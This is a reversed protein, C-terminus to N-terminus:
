LSICSVMVAVENPSSSPSKTPDFSPLMTILVADEEGSEDDTSVSPSSTPGGTPLNSPVGSPKLTTPKITEFFHWIDGDDEQVQVSMSEDEKMSMSEDWSFLLSFSMSSDKWEDNVLSGWPNTNASPVGTPKPEITELFHWMDGDDGQVSMSEDGQVSMSEDWLFLDVSLSMSTSMDLSLSFSM